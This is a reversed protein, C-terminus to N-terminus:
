NLTSYSLPLLTLVHAEFDHDALIYGTICVEHLILQDLFSFCEIDTCPRTAPPPTIITPQSLQFAANLVDPTIYAPQRSQFRVLQQQLYWKCLQIATIQDMEVTWAAVANDSPTTEECSEYTNAIDLVEDNNDGDNYEGGDAVIRDQNCYIVIQNSQQAQILDTFDAKYRNALGNRQM